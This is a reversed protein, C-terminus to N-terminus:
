LPKIDFPMCPHGKNEEMDRGTNQPVGWAGDVEKGTEQLRFTNWYIKDMWGWLEDITRM